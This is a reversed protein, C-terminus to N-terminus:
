KIIHFSTCLSKFNGRPISLQSKRQYAYIRSCYVVIVLLSISHKLWVASYSNFHGRSILLLLIRISFADNITNLNNFKPYGTNRCTYYGTFQRVDIEMYRNNIRNTFDLNKWGKWLLSKITVSYILNLWLVIRDSPYIIEAKNYNTFSPTRSLDM